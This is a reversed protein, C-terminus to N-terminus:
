GLRHTSTTPPVTQHTTLTAFCHAGDTVVYQHLIHLTPKTATTHVTHGNSKGSATTQSTQVNGKSESHLAQSPEDQEATGTKGEAQKCGTALSSTIKGSAGDAPHPVTVAGHHRGLHAHAAKVTHGPPGGTQGGRGSTDLPAPDIHTGKSFHIFRHHGHRHHGAVDAHAPTGLMAPVITLAAGVLAATLGNRQYSNIVAVSGASLVGTAASCKILCKRQCRRKNVMSDAAVVESTTMPAPGGDIAPELSRRIM